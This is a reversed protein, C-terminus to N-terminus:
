WGPPVAGFLGFQNTYDEGEYYAFEVMQGEWNKILAKIKDLSLPRRILDEIPVLNYRDEATAEKVIEIQTYLPPCKEAGFPYEM